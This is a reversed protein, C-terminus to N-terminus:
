EEDDEDKVKKPRAGDRVALGIVLLAFMGIIFIALLLGDGKMVGKLVFSLAAVLFSGILLYSVWLFGKEVRFFFRSVPDEPIQNSRKYVIKYQDEPEIDSRSSIGRRYNKFPRDPDIQRLYDEAPNYHPSKGKAM